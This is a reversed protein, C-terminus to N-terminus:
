GRKAVRAAIFNNEVDTARGTVAIRDGPAFDALAAAGNAGVRFQTEENTILTIARGNRTTMEINNENIATIEGIAARGNLRDAPVYAVLRALVGADTVQGVVVVRDGAVFDALTPADVDSHRFRTNEDTLVTVEDGGLTTMTFSSDDLSNIEGVMERRPPRPARASILTHADMEDDSGWEGFAAIRMGERLMTQGAPDGGWAFTQGRMAVLTDGTVHLTIPQGDRGNLTVFADGIAAIRGLAMEGDPLRVILTALFAGDDQRQGRGAIADGVQFDALAAGDQGIIHFQTDDNTQVSIERDRVAVTLASGSIATIEGRMGRRAHLPRASEPEQAVATGMVRLLMALTLLIVLPIQAKKLM